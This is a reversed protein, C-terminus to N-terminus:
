ANRIEQSVALFWDFWDRTVNLPIGGSDMLIHPGLQRGHDVVQRLHEVQQDKPWDFFHKNLGGCLVVNPGIAQRVQEMPMHDDPDIPNIIDIGAEALDPLIPLIAGHSHMHLVVNYDHVLDCIKKHWPWLFERYLKPSILLSQGSGLDDCLGICDVGCECMKRAATLTWIGLKEIMAKAFDSNLLLDVLFEAYDRLFYHVGSFFGNVWGVTWEGNAKAWAVDEAFGAYRSSNEPDPLQLNELDIETQIPLDFTRMSYPHQRIEKKSGTEYEVLIYDKQKDLVKKNFEGPGAHGFAANAGWGVPFACRDIYRNFWIESKLRESGMPSFPYAGVKPCDDYGEYHLEEPILTKMLNMSTFSILWQPTTDLREGALLAQMTERKNM